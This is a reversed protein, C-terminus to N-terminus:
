EKLRRISMGGALNRVQEFGHGRLLCAAIHARKGSHCVTVTPLSPDLESWRESLEDIPIHIAGPLPLKELESASRVDVVQYGELEADYGMLEPLRALDNEAVFAAMHLPDKAS